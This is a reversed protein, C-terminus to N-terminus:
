TAALEVSPNKLVELRITIATMITDTITNTIKTFTKNLFPAELAAAGTAVLASFATIVFMNAFSVAAPLYIFNYKSTM